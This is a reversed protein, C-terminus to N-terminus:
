DPCGQMGKCTACNWTQKFSATGGAVSELEEDSLEIGQLSEATIVFGFRKAIAAVGEPNVAAQVQSRLEQDVRLAEVFARLQEESM